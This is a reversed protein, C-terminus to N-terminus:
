ETTGTHPGGQQYMKEGQEQHCPPVDLPLLRAPLGVKDQHHHVVQTDTIDSAVSVVGDPQDRELYTERQRKRTQEGM